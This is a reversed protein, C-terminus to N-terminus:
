RDRKYVPSCRTAHIIRLTQTTIEILINSCDIVWCFFAAYAFALLPFVLLQEALGFLHHLYELIVPSKCVDTSGALAWARIESSQFNYRVLVDVKDSLQLIITSFKKPWIQLLSRDIRFVSILMLVAYWAMWQIVADFEVFSVTM